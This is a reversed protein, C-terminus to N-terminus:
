AAGRLPTPKSSNNPPLRSKFAKLASAVEKATNSTSSCDVLVVIFPMSRRHLFRLIPRKWFSQGAIFGIKDKPTLSISQYIGVTSQTINSINDWPIFGSLFFAQRFLIGDPHASIVPLRTLGYLLAPLGLLGFFVTGSAMISATLWNWMRWTTFLALYGCFVAMGLAVLALGTCNWCLRKEFNRFNQM